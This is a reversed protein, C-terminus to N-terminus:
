RYLYDHLIEDRTKDKIDLLPQELKREKELNSNRYKIILDVKVTNWIDKLIELREM